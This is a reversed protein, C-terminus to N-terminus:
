QAVILLGDHWRWQGGRKRKDLKTSSLSKELSELEQLLDVRDQDSFGSFSVDHAIWPDLHQLNKRLAEVNSKLHNFQRDAEEAPLRKKKCALTVGFNLCDELHQIANDTLKGINKFIEKDGEDFTIQKQPNESVFFEAYDEQLGNEVANNGRPQKTRLKRAYKPRHRGGM